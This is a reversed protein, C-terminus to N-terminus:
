FAFAILSIAVRQGGAGRNAVRVLPDTWAARAEPPPGARTIPEISVFGPKARKSLNWAVTAGLAAGGAYGALLAWGPVFAEDAGPLHYETLKALPWIMVLGLYAGGMAWGCGGEYRTSARGIGCVMRGVLAPGSSLALVGAGFLPLSGYYAGGGAAYWGIAGVGAAALSALVVEGTVLIAEEGPEVRPRPPLRNPTATEPDILQPLPPSAATVADPAQEKAFAPANARLLAGGLLLAAIFRHM